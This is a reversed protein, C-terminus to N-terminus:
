HEGASADDRPTPAYHDETLVPIDTTIPGANGFTITVNVMQGPKGGLAEGPQLKPLPTPTAGCPVPTAPASATPTATSKGPTATATGPTATAATSPAPTATTEIAQPLSISAGPKLTLAEFSSFLWKAPQPKDAAPCPGQEISVLTDATTGNNVVVGHLEGKGAESALVLLNRVVIGGSAANTGEAAQYPQATQANFSAGCAALAISLTAAAGALAARRVSRSSLTIPM